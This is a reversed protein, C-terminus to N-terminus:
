GQMIKSTHRTWQSEQFLTKHSRFSGANESAMQAVKSVGRRGTSRFAVHQLKYLAATNVQHARTTKTFHAVKLSSDSTGSSAIGAETLATTWGSLALLDGCMSGCCWRLTYAGCCLLTFMKEAHPLDTGSFSKQSLLFLSTM